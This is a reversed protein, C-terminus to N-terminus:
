DFCLSALAPEISGFNPKVKEQGIWYCDCALAELGDRQIVDIVGRRVAIYGLATLKGLALTIAERRFGLRESIDQHTCQITPELVRDLTVLMWRILQQDVSHHKSCVVSQSLQMIMRMLVTSIAHVHQPCEPMLRQLHPLAIRYALGSDRVNARYFSRGNLGALGIVAATGMMYTEVSFGDPMDKMMSVIAGVPYHVFPPVEGALFLDQGKSLSVLEMHASLKQYENEPLDALLRNLRPNM